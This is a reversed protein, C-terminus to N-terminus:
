SFKWVITDDFGVQEGDLDYALAKVTYRGFSFRDWEWEYPESRPHWDVNPWKIGISFGPYFLGGSYIIVTGFIVKCKSNGPLNSWYNEDWNQRCINRWLNSHFYPDEKNNIFNNKTINYLEAWKMWIPIENKIFNNSTITGGRSSYIQLGRTNEMFTNNEIHLPNWTSIGIENKTFNNNIITNGNVAGVIGCYNNKLMNNVILNNHHTDYFRIGHSNNNMINGIISTGETNIRIGGDHITNGCSQITFGSITVNEMSINIVSGIGSGDIITSYRSEGLLSIGRRVEVNEHYTGNHVFVTDGDSANDVADQIKTFDEPPNGPGEGPEDDVYIIKHTSVSPIIVQFSMTVFLLVIIGDIIKKLDKRLM